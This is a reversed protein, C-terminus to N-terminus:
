PKLFAPCPGGFGPKEDLTKMVMRTGRITVKVQTLGWNGGYYVLNNNVQHDACDWKVSADGSAMFIAAGNARPLM